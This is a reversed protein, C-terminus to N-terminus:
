WGQLPFASPTTAVSVPLEPAWTVPSEGIPKEEFRHRLGSNSVIKQFIVVCGYLLECHGAVKSRGAAASITLVVDDKVM